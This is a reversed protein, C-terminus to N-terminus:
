ELAGRVGVTGVWAIFGGIFPLVAWLPQDLLWTEVAEFRRYALSIRNRGGLTLWLDRFPVPTWYGDMVRTVGQWAAVLLGALTVDLGVFLALSRM